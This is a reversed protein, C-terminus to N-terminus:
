SKQEDDSQPCLLCIAVPDDCGKLRLEQEQLEYNSLINSVAPDGTFSKSVIIDGGTGQGELRASLNVAEGFFDLRDKLTVAISSGM